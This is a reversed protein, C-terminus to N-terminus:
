HVNLSSKFSAMKSKASRMMEPWMERTGCKHFGSKEYTSEIKHKGSIKRCSYFAMFYELIVCHHAYLSPSVM